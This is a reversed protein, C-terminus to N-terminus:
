SFLRRSTRLMLKGEEERERKEEGKREVRGRRATSSASEGEESLNSMLM